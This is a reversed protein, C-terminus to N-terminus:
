WSCEVKVTKSCKPYPWLGQILWVNSGSAQVTITAISSEKQWHFASYSQIEQITSLVTFLSAENLSMELAGAGAHGINCM